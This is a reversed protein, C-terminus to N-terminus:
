LKGEGALERVRDARERISEWEADDKNDVHSYMLGMRGTGRLTEENEKLFDWYLANFPCAGEGTTRSVAYRCDACHDSMRNVYSGSSAYPKSSLVDTGFSGMAVVNPTTVWHYADVFGLHFWENLEAPDAGYVLAFNALVMLREIHHAYGYERVHGVAESLCRMDTDGDWYAPPLDRSQELRNADALEPMAERYVHRVFERWGIVQRIFGEAANLPVPALDGSSAAETEEGGGAADNGSPGEEDSDDDGFDDLSTAAAGGGGHEAPDYAGPEVGREAYAREVARVPERPDLLGLNIAPSCLSHSCFPEGGVMADQYRGFAPLGERVFRDLAERAEDRTVPWAFEDLSDNGWTDFRERVWAHTERTLEDPEFTPRAPPEWGEPPTEQNDDDYNWEGGVPEGDAMLVGTERRVHRYWNEQRYTREAAGDAGIETEEGGTWARWDGPTTWFLENDVLELTGGREAVHERLREGAGHSAPRMLQLHPGDSDTDGDGDAGGDRGDAAGATREAFFADLGDGFSDARLYTVDHGRERLEDRFHRMASFVLTLKHAHYPKRDAFGHAEILLVDDAADLVDLDPNLQDGLLWCTTRDSVILSLPALPM